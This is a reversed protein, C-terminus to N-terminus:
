EDLDGAEPPSTTKNHDALDVFYQRCGDVTPGCAIRHGQAEAWALAGRAGIGAQSALKCLLRFRRSFRQLEHRAVAREIRTPGRRVTSALLGRRVLHYVVEQKLGLANAAQPVSLDGERAESAWAKVEDSHVHWHVLSPATGPKNVVRWCALTRDHVARILAATRDVQVLRPLADSLAVTDQPRVTQAEPIAALFRQIGVETMPLLLSEAKLVSVRRASIGLRRGVARCSMASAVADRIEDSRDGVVVRRVRGGATVRTAVADTGMRDLTRAMRTPAVGVAAALQAVTGTRSQACPVNRGVIPNRTAASGDTYTELALMLRGRWADDAVAAIRRKLTPFAENLLQVAGPATPPVRIRELLAPLAIGADELLAFGAITRAAVSAADVRSAKKGPKGALGHLSLSGVLDVVDRPFAQTAGILGSPLPDQPMLRLDHGCQCHEHRVNSWRLDQLCSDCKDALWLRHDLCVFCDFVLWESRWVGRERLCASCLRARAHVGRATVARTWRPNLGNRAAERLWFGQPSEGPEPEVRVLLGPRPSSWTGADQNMASM